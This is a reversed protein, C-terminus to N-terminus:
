YCKKSKKSIAIMEGRLRQAETDYTYIHVKFEKAATQIDHLFKEKFGANDFKIKPVKGNKEM